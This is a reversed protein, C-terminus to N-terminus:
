IDTKIIYILVPVVWANARAYGSHDPFSKFSHFIVRVERLWIAETKAATTHANMVTPMLMAGATVGRAEKTAYFARGIFSLLMFTEERLWTRDAKAAIKHANMVMPM